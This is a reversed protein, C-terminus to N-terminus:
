IWQLGWRRILTVILQLVIVAYVGAAIDDAVVGTGGPIKEWKRAPQLKVIDFIRFLFFGLCYAIVNHPAMFLTIAQGMMEDIVIHRDDHGFYKVGKGAFYVAIPYFLFIILLQYYWLAPWVFWLIIGAALSGWSGPAIPLYGTFIGTIFFKHFVEVLKSFAKETM